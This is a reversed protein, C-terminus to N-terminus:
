IGEQALVAPKELECEALGESAYHRDQEALGHRFCAPRRLLEKGGTTRYVVDWVPGDPECDQHAAYRKSQCEREDM